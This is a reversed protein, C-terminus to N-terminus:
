VAIPIHIDKGPVYGYIEVGDATIDDINTFKQKFRIKPDNEPDTGLELMEEMAELQNAYVHSDVGVSILEVAEMNVVHAISHLLYSYQIVNFVAGAPVDSSTNNRM